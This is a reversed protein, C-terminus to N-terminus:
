EFDLYPPHNKIFKDIKTVCGQNWPNDRLHIDVVKGFVTELDGEICQLKNGTLDLTGIYVNVVLDPNWNDIENYALNLSIVHELKDFAKAAINRIKNGQFSIIEVSPYNKFAQDPIETIQNYSVAIDALSKAGKLWNNDWQTLNNGQISLSTLASMDDFAKSAIKVIKNDDLNLSNPTTSFM